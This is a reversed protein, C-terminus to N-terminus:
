YPETAERACEVRISCGMLVSKIVSFRPNAPVFSECRRMRLDKPNRRRSCVNSRAFVGPMRPATSLTLDRKSVEMGVNLFLYQQVVARIYASGDIFAPLAGLSPPSQHLRGCCFLLPPPPVLAVLVLVRSVSSTIGFMWSFEDCLSRIPCLGAARTDGKKVRRAEARWCTQMIATLSCNCGRTM